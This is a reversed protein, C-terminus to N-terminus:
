SWGRGGEEASRGLAEAFDRSRAGLVELAFRVLEGALKRGVRAAVRTAARLETWDNEIVFRRSM